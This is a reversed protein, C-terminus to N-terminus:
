KPPPDKKIPTVPKGPHRSDYHLGVQNEHPILAMCIHCQVKLGAARHELQSGKEKGKKEQNKAQAQIIQTEEEDKLAPQVPAMEEGEEEDRILLDVIQEIGDGITEDKEVLHYNRIIPYVKQSRMIARTRKSGTLLVLAEIVMKRCEKDEDRDVSAQHPKNHLQENMGEMDDADLINDGRIVQLLKTLVDMDPTLLHPHDYGSYCCNRVISIVGRRKVTNSHSMLPLLPKLINNDKNMIIKRGEQIQTINLLINIVWNGKASTMYDPSGADATVVNALKLIYFGELERGYQMLQTCGEKTHTVNALLMSYIESLKNKSDTSGDVLLLTLLPSIIFSPPSSSLPAETPCPTINTTQTISCGTNDAVLITYSGQSIKKLTASPTIVNTVSTPTNNLILSVTYNNPSNGGSLTLSLSECVSNDLSLIIPLSTVTVPLSSVLLRPCLPDVITAQVTHQGLAVNSFTGNTQLTTSNDISFQTAVPIAMQPSSYAHIMGLNSTSCSGYPVAALAVPETNDVSFINHWYCLPNSANTRVIMYQSSTPMGGFTNPSSTSLSPLQSYSMGDYIVHYRFDNSNEQAVVSAMGNSSGLCSEPKVNVKVNYDVPRVLYLNISNQCGSAIEIYPLSISAGEQTFPILIPSTLLIFKDYSRQDFTVKWYLEGCEPAELTYNPLELVAHQPPTWRDFLDDNIVYGDVLSVIIGNDSKVRLTGDSNPDCPYKAVTINFMPPTAPKVATLTYPWSCVGNKLVLDIPKGYPVRSITPGKTVYPSSAIISTIEIPQNGNTSVMKLSYAGDGGNGTSTGDIPSCTAQKITAPTITVNISVPVYIPMVGSCGDQVTYQLNYKGPKVSSLSKTAAFNLVGDISLYSFTDLNTVTIVGNAETCHTADQPTIDVKLDYQTTPTVQIETTYPVPCNLYNVAINYNGPSVTFGVSTSPVNVVREGDLYVTLIQNVAVIAVHGNHANSCTPLTDMTPALFSVEYQCAKVAYTQSYTIGPTLNLTLQTGIVNNYSITVESTRALGCFTNDTYKVTSVFKSSDLEEEPSISLLITQPEMDCDVETAELQYDSAILDTFVGTSSTVTISPDLVLKLTIPQQFQLYNPITVTVNAFCDSGTQSVIYQPKTRPFDISGPRITEGCKTVEIEYTSGYTGTFKGNSYDSSTVNIQNLYASSLTVTTNPSACTPRKDITYTFHYLPGALRIKQLPFPSQVPKTDQGTELFYAPASDNVNVLTVSILPQNECEGNDYTLVMSSSSEITGSIIETDCAESVLTLTFKDVPLNNFVGNNDNTLLMDSNVLYLKISQYQSPNGVTLSGTSGYCVSPTKTITPRSNSLSTVQFNFDCSSGGQSLTSLSHYGASVIIPTNGDVSPRNDLTLSVYPDNYSNTLTIPLTTYLCKGQASPTVSPGSPTFTTTQPPCEDNNNVFDAQYARNITLDFVLAGNQVNPQVLLSSELDKVTILSFEQFNPLVLVLGVIIATFLCLAFTGLFQAM